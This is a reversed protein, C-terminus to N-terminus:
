FSSVFAVDNKRRYIVCVCVCIYIYILKYIIIYVYIYKCYIESFAYVIKSKEIYVTCGMEYMNIGYMRLVADNM